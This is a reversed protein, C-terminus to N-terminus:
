GLGDAPGRGQGGSLGPDDNGACVREFLVHQRHKPTQFYVCACNPMKLTLSLAFIETNAPKPASTSVRCAEVPITQFAKPCM